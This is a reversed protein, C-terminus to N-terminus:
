IGLSLEPRLIQRDRRLLQKISRMRIMRVNRSTTTDSPRNLVDANMAGSMLLLSGTVQSIGALVGTFRLVLILAIVTIWPKLTKWVANLKRNNFDMKMKSLDM